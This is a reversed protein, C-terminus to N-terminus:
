NFIQTTNPKQPVKELTEELILRRYSNVLFLDNDNGRIIQAIERLIFFTYGM